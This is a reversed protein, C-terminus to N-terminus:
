SHWRLLIHNPYEADQDFTYTKEPGTSELVHLSLEDGKRTIDLSPGRYRISMEACEDAESYEIAARIDPQELVPILLQQIMEEFALHIHHATKWPIRNKICYKDIKSEIALFDRERRRENNGRQRGTRGGPKCLSSFHLAGPM